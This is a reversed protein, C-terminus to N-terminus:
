LNISYGSGNYNFSVSTLGNVVTNTGIPAFVGISDASTGAYTGSGAAWPAAPVGAPIAAGGGPSVGLFMNDTATPAGFALSGLNVDGNALFEISFTSATGTQGFYGIGNYDVRIGTGLNNVTITGGVATNFDTWCGAFAPGAPTASSSYTTDSTGMTVRGNTIVHYQTYITGFLSLAPLCNPASNATLSLAVDDGTPGPITAPAVSGVLALASSTRVGAPASPDLVAMQADLEFPPAPVPLNLLPVLPPFLGGNLFGFSPHGININVFAGPIGFSDPVTTTGATFALDWGAGVLGNINVNVITGACRAVTIPTYPTNTQGDGDLFANPSNVQHTAPPPTLCQGYWTGIEAPTLARDYLRADEMLNNLRLTNTSGTYKAFVVATTSAAFGVYGSVVNDAVQIGDKYGRLRGVSSDYVWVCHVWGTAGEGGAINTDPMGTGRLLLNGAGAVGGSFIRWGNTTGGFVYQTATGSTNASCNICFGVTWSGTGLVSPNFGTTVESTTTGAGKLCPSGGSGIGNEEHGVLPHPGPSFSGSNITVGDGTPGDFLYQLLPPQALATGCVFVLAGLVRRSM